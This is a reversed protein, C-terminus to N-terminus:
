LRRYGTHARSSPPERPAPPGPPRSPGPQARGSWGRQRWRRAPRPTTGTLRKSALHPGAPGPRPVAEGARSFPGLGAPTPPSPAPLPPRGPGPVGPPRSRLQSAPPPRDGARRWAPTRGRPALAPSRDRTQPCAAGRGPGVFLQLSHDAATTRSTLARTPCTPPPPLSAPGFAPPRPNLWQTCSAQNCKYLSTTDCTYTLHFFSSVECQVHLKLLRSQTVKTISYSCPCRRVTIGQEHLAIWQKMKRTWNAAGRRTVSM